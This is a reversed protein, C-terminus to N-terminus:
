VVRQTRKTQLLGRFAFLVAKKSCKYNRCTSPNKWIRKFYKSNPKVFLINRGNNFISPVLSLYNKNFKYFQYNLSLFYDELSQNTDNDVEIMVMSSNNKFFIEGGKIAEWQFGEVDIKIIDPTCITNYLSDITSNYGIPAPTINSCNGLAGGACTTQTVDWTGVFDAATVSKLTLEIRDLIDNLVDASVVDGAAFRQATKYDDAYTQFSLTFLLIFIIKKM